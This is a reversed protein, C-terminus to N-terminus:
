LTARAPGGHGYKESQNTSVFARAISQRGSPCKTQVQYQVKKVNIKENELGPKSLVVSYTYLKQTQLNATVANECLQSNNFVHQGM